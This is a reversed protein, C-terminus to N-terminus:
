LNLLHRFKSSRQDIGKSQCLIRGGIVLTIIILGHKTVIRMRLFRSCHCEKRRIMQNRVHRIFTSKNSLCRRVSKKIGLRDRSLIENIYASEQYLSSLEKFNNLAWEASNLHLNTRKLFFSGTNFYRMCIILPAAFWANGSHQPQITLTPKKTQTCGKLHVSIQEVTGCQCVYESFAPLFCPSQLKGLVQEALVDLLNSWEMQSM